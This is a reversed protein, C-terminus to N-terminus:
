RGSPSKVPWSPVEGALGPFWSESRSPRHFLLYLITLTRDPEELKAKYSNLQFDRFHLRYLGWRTYNISGVQHWMQHFLRGEPMKEVLQGDKPKLQKCQEIQKM